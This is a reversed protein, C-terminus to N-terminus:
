IRKTKIGHNAFAIQWETVVITAETVAMDQSLGSIRTQSKGREVTQVASSM